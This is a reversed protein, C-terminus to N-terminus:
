GFSLQMQISYILFIVTYKAKLEKGNFLENAVLYKCDKIYKVYINCDFLNPLQFLITTNTYTLLYSFKSIGFTNDSTM